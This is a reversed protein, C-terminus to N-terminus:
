IKLDEKILFYYFSYFLKINIKFSIKINLNLGIIKIIIENFLSGEEILYLFIFGNKLKYNRILIM